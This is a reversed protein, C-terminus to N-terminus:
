SIFDCEGLGFTVHSELFEGVEELRWAAILVCQSLEQESVFEQERCHRYYDVHRFTM